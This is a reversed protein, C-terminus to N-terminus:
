IERTSTRQDYMVYHRCLHNYSMAIGLPSLCIKGENPPAFGLRSSDHGSVGMGICTFGEKRIVRKRLVCRVPYVCIKLILSCSMRM